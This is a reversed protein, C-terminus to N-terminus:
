EQIKQKACVFRKYIASEVLPLEKGEKNVIIQSVDVAVHLMNSEDHHPMFLSKEVLLDCKELAKKIRNLMPNRIVPSVIDPLTGRMSFAGYILAYRELLSKRSKLGLNSLKVGCGGYLSECLLYVYLASEGPGLELECERDGDVIKLRSGKMSTVDIIMRSRSGRRYTVMDFITKYFGDYIFASKEDRVNLMQMTLGCCCDVYADVLANVEEVIHATVGLLMFDSYRCNGVVSNGLKILLSPKSVNLGIGLRRELIENKFYRTSMTTIVDIVDSVEQSVLGPSMYSVVSTLLERDTKKYHEAISPIHMFDFGVVRLANVIERYHVVVQRHTMADFGDELFLVQSDVFDLEGSPVSVIRSMGNDDNLTLKMALLLLSEERSRSGDSASMSEMDVILSEKVKAGSQAIGQWAESLTLSQAEVFHIHEIKHLKCMKDLMAIEQGDIVKDAKLMEVIFKAYYAKLGDKM